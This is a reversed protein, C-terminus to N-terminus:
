HGHTECYSAHRPTDIFDVDGAGVDSDGIWPITVQVDPPLADVVQWGRQDIHRSIPATSIDQGTQGAAAM